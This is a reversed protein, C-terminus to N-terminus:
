DLEVQSLDIHEVWFRKIRSGWREIGVVDDHGNPYWPNQTGLVLEEVAFHHELAKNLYDCRYPIMNWADLLVLDSLVSQSDNIFTNVFRKAQSGPVLHGPELTQCSELLNGPVKITSLASHSIWEVLNFSSEQDQLDLSVETLLPYPLHYGPPPPHVKASRSRHINSLSIILIEKYM